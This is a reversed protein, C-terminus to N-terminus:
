PTITLSVSQTDIEQGNRILTVRGQYTGSTFGTDPRRKGFSRFFQAQPKDLAVTKSLATGGAGTVDLRLSDGARSGFAYAWFMLVPSDASLSTHNADGARIDAYTPPTGSFGASIIGGAAYAPATQWLTNGDPSGCTIKGDPDFPDVVQGNHRVSLHVHPFQTRGSYGVQGLVAGAAVKQGSRVQVSGRKMHCYQTQWGDGHDIVVGNGCDKGEIVTATDKSYGTDPMGDRMGRVTGPAAALVDVGQQMARFSPLAFDTGKHKDYSLGSCTYDQAGPGPDQDVYQQIFCTDGLTCDIPLRLSLEGAMVPMALSCLATAVTLRM